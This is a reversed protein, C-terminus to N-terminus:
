NPTVPPETPLASAGYVSATGKTVPEFGGTAVVGTLAGSWPVPM